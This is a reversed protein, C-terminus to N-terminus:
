MMMAAAGGVQGVAGMISSLANSQASMANAYNQQNYNSVQMGLQGITNWGNQMNSYSNLGINAFNSVANLNNGTLASAQNLANTANNSATNVLNQNSNMTNGLYGSGLAAIQYQKNWGLEKAANRAQNAAAARAAAENTMLANQQALYQGSTPNIGYQAMRQNLAQRQTGYATTIDASALGAQREAEANTNYQAAQDILSDEIPLYKQNYRDWLANTIKNQQNAQETAYQQWYENSQKALARDEANAALSAETTDKLWPYMTNEYWDEQREMLDTQRKISEEVAPTVSPASSYSKKGM